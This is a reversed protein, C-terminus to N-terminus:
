EKLRVDLAYLCNSGEILNFKVKDGRKIKQHAQNKHVYAQKNIEDVIIFGYGNIRNYFKVVGTKM